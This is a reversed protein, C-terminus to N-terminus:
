KRKKKRNTVRTTDPKPDVITSVTPEDSSTTDDDTEVMEEDTAEAVKEETFTDVDTTEQITEHQEEISEDEMSSDEDITDFESPDEKEDEMVDDPIKSTLDVDDISGTISAKKAEEAAKKEAAKREQLQGEFDERFNKTNLRIITGDSLVEDIVAHKCLCKLIDSMTMMIGTKIGYVPPTVDRVPINAKINVKKLKNVTKGPIIVSM